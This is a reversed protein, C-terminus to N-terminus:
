FPFVATQSSGGTVVSHDAEPATNNSFGGHVSSFEGRATNAEGGIVTSDDGTTTNDAGGVVVNNSGFQVTNDEGGVIVSRSTDGLVENRRGGMIASNPGRTSNFTGAVIASSPSRAINGFGGALASFRGGDEEITNAHGGLIAGFQDFLSNGQGSVIGGYSTYQHLWGVVLNHSGGRLLPEGDDENYGIILNGRGNTPGITDGSGDRIHVNCGDFVVDTVGEISACRQFDTVFDINPEFINVQDVIEDISVLAESIDINTETLDSRLQVVDGDTTNLAQRLEEVESRAAGLDQQLQMVQNQLAEVQAQLVQFPTGQAPQEPEEALVWAPSTVSLAFCLSVVIQNRM